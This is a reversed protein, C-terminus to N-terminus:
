HHGYISLPHLNVCRYRCIRYLWFQRVSLDLMFQEQVSIHDDSADSIHDDRVHWNEETRILPTNTMESEPAKNKPKTAAAPKIAVNM